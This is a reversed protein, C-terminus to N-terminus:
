SAVPEAVPFYVWVSTGHGVESDIRLAGGHAQVIHKVIALGLGTGGLERSRAKDVRYFRETLRPLDHSPIGVGTDAVCVELWARPKADAHINTSPLKAVEHASITVRGGAATYKVANDLLNVLVQEVRDADGQLEPLNNPLDVAISVKGQDAKEHVVDIAGEVAPALRMPSRQLATRGLELDSLTLLDDTLRGLRESHREIVGVFKRALGPDDIAGNLLTEAYGRIATLPTRLEHSVNAVFDRRTTELKKLESIDHFVLIFQRPAGGPEPIPSVTVRLTQRDSQDLTIERVLAAGVDGRLASRLLDQLDPDRSVEILPHGVLASSAGFLREARQNSLQITGSRDVVLVGEVMGSLTVELKGKEQRATELQSRLSDAMAIMNEEMQSIMDSGEPALKPAERGSAVATSFDTLAALRKALGRSMAWVPWLAILAAVFLGTLIATRIRYTALEVTQIPMALRVYRHTSGRTQKWAQYFLRQHVSASLRADRGSGEREAAIVEPRNGHNELAASSAESDGLVTGDDAIVTIRSGVIAALEQCRRDFAEGSLDWPLQVGVLHAQRLAGDTLTDLYLHEVVSDTYVYLTFAVAALVLLYPALLRFLLNRPWRM